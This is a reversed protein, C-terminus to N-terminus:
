QLLRVCVMGIRLTGRRRRGCLGSGQVNQETVVKSACQNEVNGADRFRRFRAILLARCFINFISFDVCCKYFFYHLDEVNTTMLMSVTIVFLIKTCKIYKICKMLLILFM